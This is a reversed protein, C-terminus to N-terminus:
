ARRALEEVVERNAAILDTDHPHDKASVALIVARVQLAPLSMEAIPM